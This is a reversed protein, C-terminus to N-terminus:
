YSKSNWGSMFGSYSILRHIYFRSIHLVTTSCPPWSPKPLFFPGPTPHPRPETVSCMVYVWSSRPEIGLGTRCFVNWPRDENGGRGVMGLLTYIPGHKATQGIWVAAEPIGKTRLWDFACCSLHNQNKKKFSDKDPFLRLNVFFTWSYSCFSYSFFALLFVLM